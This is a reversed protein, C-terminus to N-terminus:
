HVMPVIIGHQQLADALERHVRRNARLSIPVHGERKMHAKLKALSDFATYRALMADICTRSMKMSDKEKSKSEAPTDLATYSALMADFCTRSMKMSGKEKSKSEAPTCRISWRPEDSPLAPMMDALPDGHGSAISARAAEVAADLYTNAARAAHEDHPGASQLATYMRAMNHLALYRLSPSQGPEYEDALNARLWPPLMLWHMRCGWFMRAPVRRKCQYANCSFM